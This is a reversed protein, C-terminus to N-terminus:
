VGRLRALAALPVLQGAGLALTLVGSAAGPPGGGGPSGPGPPRPYLRGALVALILAGVTTPEFVGRAGLWAFAGIAAVDAAVGPLRHWWVPEPEAAAEDAAERAHRILSLAIEPNTESRLMASLTRLRVRPAVPAPERSM